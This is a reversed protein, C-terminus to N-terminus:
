KKSLIMKKKGSKKVINKISKKVVKEIKNTLDSKNDKLVKKIAVLLKEKLSKIETKKM